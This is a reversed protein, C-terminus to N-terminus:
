IICFYSDLIYVFIYFWVIGSYFVIYFLVLLFFFWVFGVVEFGVCVSFDVCDNVLVLFIFFFEFWKFM